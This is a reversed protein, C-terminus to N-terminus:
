FGKKLKISCSDRREHGWPEETCFCRADVRSASGVPDRDTLSWPFLTYDGVEDLLEVEMSSEGTSNYFHDRFLVCCDEPM